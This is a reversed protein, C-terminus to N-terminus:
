KLKSLTQIEDESLIKEVDLLIKVNEEIKGIGYIYQNNASRNFNRTLQINEEAISLVELVEDVVLGIAAGGMDVVIICTREEYDKPEFRFRIRMDIVPIIKGRLNIVGKIHSPMEPVLTIKQIGIIETVYKIAIGYDEEKLRFTLFKDKLTDEDDFDDDDDYGYKKDDIM